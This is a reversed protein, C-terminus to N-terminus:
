MDIIKVGSNGNPEKELNSNRQPNDGNSTMPDDKVQQLM